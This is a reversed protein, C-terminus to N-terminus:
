ANVQSKKQACPAPLYETSPQSAQLFAVDSSYRGAPSRDPRIPAARAVPPRAGRLLGGARPQVIM